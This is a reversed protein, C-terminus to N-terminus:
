IKESEIVEIVRWDARTTDPFFGAIQEKVALEMSEPSLARVSMKRPVVVYSGTILKVIMIREQTTYIIICARHEGSARFTDLTKSAPRRVTLRPACSVGPVAALTPLTLASPAPTPCRSAGIAPNAPKIV